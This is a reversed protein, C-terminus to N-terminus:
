TRIATRLAKNLAGTVADIDSGTMDPWLPLRLLRNSIAETLPLQGAVRGYRRGAVSTHLPVYHFVASVGHARLTDIVDTREELSPLIVYYIHANGRSQPRVLLGSREFPELAAHYRDWVQRRRATIEAAGELQAFLFAATLENPLYSSGIDTWTYKDVDGRHFESRNTGKERVIEARRILREDNVLLAGAEGSSVNKTQHFSLTGMSGISGLPRDSCTSLLAQAADEIVVAGAADAISMIADMDCAVGAYHVPVIARTRPTVAAAVCAPDLTLRDPLIDVFVPIGGRLVFANATSTFTFSPMIVEDNPRIDALIAAMELAGTCSHTLFARRCHVTNELWRECRRAFPGDGGLEGSAIAEAIYELERGTLSLRNFPIRSITM